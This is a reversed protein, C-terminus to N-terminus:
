EYCIGNLKWFERYEAFLKQRKAYFSSSYDIMGKLEDLSNIEWIRACENNNLCIHPFEFFKCIELTRMDHVLWLAPIGNLYALMNGHLRTGISCMFRENTLYEEWEKLDFFLKYKIKEDVMDNQNQRIVQVCKGASNVKSIFDTLKTMEGPICTYNALIDGDGFQIRNELISSSTNHRSLNSYFSPCGIVKYNDIGLDNLCKGSLEGRVGIYECKDALSFLLRKKSPSISDIIRKSDYGEEFTAQVGLGVIVVKAKTGAIKRLKRSLITEGPALNNALPVILTDNATLEYEYIDDIYIEADFKIGIKSKEHWVINGTNGIVASWKEEEPWNDLVKYCSNVFYISM